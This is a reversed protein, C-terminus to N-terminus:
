RAGVVREREDALALLERQLREWSIPEIEEYAPGALDSLSSRYDEWAGRTREDLEHLEQASDRDAASTTM